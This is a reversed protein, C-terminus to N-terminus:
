IVVVVVVVVVVVIKDVSFNKFLIFSHLYVLFCFKVCGATLMNAQRPSLHTFFFLFTEIRIYFTNKM